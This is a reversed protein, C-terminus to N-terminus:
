ISYLDTDATKRDKQFAFPRFGKSWGFRWREREFRRLDQCLPPKRRFGFMGSQTPIGKGSKCGNQFEGARRGSAQDPRRAAEYSSKENSFLNKM